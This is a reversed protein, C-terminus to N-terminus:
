LRYQVATLNVFAALSGSSTNPSNSQKVVIKTRDGNADSYKTVYAISQDMAGGKTSANHVAYSVQVTIPGGAPDFTGGKVVHANGSYWSDTNSPTIDNLDYVRDWNHWSGSGALATSAVVKSRIASAHVVATVGGGGWPILKSSDGHKLDPSHALWAGGGAKPDLLIQYGSATNDHLRIYNRMGRGFWNSTDKYADMCLDTNDPDRLALQGGEAGSGSNSGPFFHSKANMDNVFNSSSTYSKSTKYIVDKIPTGWTADDGSINPGRFHQGSFYNTNPQWRPRTNNGDKDSIDIAPITVYSNLTLYGSHGIKFNSDPAVIGPSEGDAIEAAGGGSGGNTQVWASNYRIYMSATNTDWWLDGNSSSTPPAPQAKVSAGTDANKLANIQAQLDALKTQIDGDDFEANGSIKVGTATQTVTIGSGAEITLGARVADTLSAQITKEINNKAVAITDSGSVDSEPLERIKIRNDEAM